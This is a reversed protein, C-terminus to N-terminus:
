PHPLGRSEMESLVANMTDMGDEDLKPIQDALERYEQELGEDTMNGIVALEGYSIAM